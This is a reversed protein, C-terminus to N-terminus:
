LNNGKIILKGICRKPSSSDLHFGATCGDCTVAADTDAATAALSDCNTPYASIVILIFILTSKVFQM